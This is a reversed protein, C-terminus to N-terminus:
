RAVATVPEPEDVYSLVVACDQDFSWVHIRTRQPLVTPTRFRYTEPNAPDYNRVWLLPELAGGPREAVIRMSQGTMLSSPTLALIRARRPLPTTGGRLTIQKLPQVAGNAFFLAVRSRDTPGPRTPEKYSLELTITANAAARLGVGAPFFVAGDDPRWVGLTQDGIRVIASRLLAPTGPLFQWGQISRGATLGLPRMHVRRASVIPYERDLDVVLDPRRAPLTTTQSAASPPSATGRRRGGDVWSVLMDLESRTLSPDNAFDGFGPKARWPPMRGELVSEKVARGWRVAEDFDTLTPKAIGGPAHCKGCRRDLVPGVDTWTVWTARDALTPKLDGVGVCLVVVSMISLVLRAMRTDYGLCLTPWRLATGHEARDRAM